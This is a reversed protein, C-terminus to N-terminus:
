WFLLTKLDENAGMVVVSAVREQRGDPGDLGDPGDDDLLPIDRTLAGCIHTDSTTRRVLDESRLHTFSFAVM